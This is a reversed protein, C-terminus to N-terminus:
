TCEYLFRTDAIKKARGGYVRLCARAILALTEEICSQAVCYWSKQSTRTVGNDCM